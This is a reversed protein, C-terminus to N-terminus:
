AESLTKKVENLTQKSMREQRTIYTPPSILTNRVNSQMTQIAATLEGDNDFLIEPQVTLFFSYVGMFYKRVRGHEVFGDVLTASLYGLLNGDSGEVTRYKPHYIVKEGTSLSDLTYGGLKPKNSRFEKLTRIHLTGDLGYDTCVEDLSNLSAIYKLTVKDMIDMSITSNIYKTAVSFTSAQGAQYLSLFKEFRDYEYPKLYAAAILNKILGAAQAPTEVVILLDIDSQETVATDAGYTNSGSLLLGSVLQKAIRGIEHALQINVRAYQNL